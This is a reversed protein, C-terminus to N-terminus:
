GAPEALAKIELFEEFGAKGNERGLGSRKYGGFPVDPGYWMGGNIMMTGTRIRRAVRRAREIDACLIGGSLGYNSNNAIRIADEEDDYGILCQVPGFFEQQAVVSDPEAVFATPEVYYGKPQDKPRGGGCLLTAGDETGEAILALVRDRQEASCQPGQLTEPDKPDGVKINAMAAKLKQASEALQDKPVLIRSLIACGQGSHMCVSTGAQAAIDPIGPLDDMLLLASKGGLELAVRRVFPATVELIRQGTATSGTFSVMDIRPDRTLQEGIGNQSSTITNIVGPPIDTNEHFFRGLLLTCWPTAPAGKLVVTCGAALAWGVKKLNLEHPFNWATIAAVVGVAERELWRRAEGAGLPAAKGLEETWEYQELFNAYYGLSEIPADIGPGYTMNIPCGVEAVYSERLADLNEQFADQLQRLCRARLSHDRSWDTEDFARRAAAIARDIDDAGADAAVGIVEETAPDINEYVLGGSAQVLEGDILLREERFFDTM